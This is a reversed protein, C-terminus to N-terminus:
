LERCCPQGASPAGCALDPSCFKERAPHGALLPLTVAQQSPQWLQQMLRAKSGQLDASSSNGAGVGERDRDRDRSSIQTVLPLQLGWVQCPYPPSPIFLLLMWVKSELTMSSLRRPWLKAEQSGYAEPQVARGQLM